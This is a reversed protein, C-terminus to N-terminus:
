VSLFEILLALSLLVVLDFFSGAHPRFRGTFCGVINPSGSRDLSTELGVDPMSPRVASPKRQLPWWYLDDIVRGAWPIKLPPAATYWQWIRESRHKPHWFVCACLRLCREDPSAEQTHIESSELYFSPPGEVSQDVAAENVVAPLLCM